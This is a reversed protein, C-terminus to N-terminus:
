ATRTSANAETEPQVFRGAFLISAEKSGQQQVLIFFIFPRDARFYTMTSGMLPVVSIGTVAAAVTGEETVEILANHVVEGVKVGGSFAVSLDAKLGFLDRIGLKELSPALELKSAASFRPLQLLVETSKLSALVSSIPTFALDRSLDTLAQTGIRRPLLVLMSARGGMYPIQIAQADLAPIEAYNYHAISEMLPVQKCGLNPVNFCRSRTATKDFSQQWTGNFFVSSTILMRTDPQLSKDVISNIRGHTSRKAWDNIAKIATSQDFFNVSQLEARYYHQLADAYDKKLSVEKGLWLKIATQLEIGGAERLSFATSSAINRIGQIDAPLRLTSLIEQRTRGAAAEVLTMLAAKIGSTGVIVNGTEAENVAQLLEIGFFNQRDVIGTGLASGGTVEDNDTDKDDADGTRNPIPPPQSSPSALLSPTTSPSQMAPEVIGTRERPNNVVGMFLISGTSEDEIYFLFPHNAHFTEDSMKNGLEVETATYAVTGEESVEIGAKQIIDSVTLRRSTSRSRLIGTLTATDDFIDRIGLERLNNELHSTFDFKFKPIIIDAPVEQMLWMSKNIIFPNIKKVVEDLKGRNLPLVFFMSFKHGAYPLRLIKADLEDSTVLYFKSSARMFPVQLTTKEDSMYFTGMKTDSSRFPQRHWRGKFFMASTVVMLSDKLQEDNEIVKSILGDTINKVFNNVLEASSRTDSFNTSLVDTNYFSKAIAGYRQRPKISNDMFIRTGINLAYEPRQTQLSKIISSFKDRTASRGIPLHMVDALEQATEDQAGEYLLTLALKLSVPSVLLNGKVSKAMNKLLGWDFMTFREGEFPVFDDVDDNANEATANM